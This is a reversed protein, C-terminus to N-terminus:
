LGNHPHALLAPKGVSELSDALGPRRVQRLVALKILQNRQRVAAAVGPQSQLVLVVLAEEVEM